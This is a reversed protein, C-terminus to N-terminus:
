SRADGNTDGTDYAEGQSARYQRGLRILEAFDPDDRSAGFSGLWDANLPGARVIRKLDAREKELNDVRKELLHAM